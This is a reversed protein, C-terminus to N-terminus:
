NSILLSDVRDLWFNVSYSNTAFHNQFFILEIDLGLEKVIRYVSIDEYIIGKISDIDKLIVKLNDVDNCDLLRNILIYKNSVDVKEIEDLTYTNEYGVCYDKLAFLFASVGAKRYDSVYDKNDVYILIKNNM